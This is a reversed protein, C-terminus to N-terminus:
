RICANPRRIDLLESVSIASLKADLSDAGHKLKWDAEEAYLPVFAYFRVTKEESVVLKHFSEDFLAPQSLYACCLETNAAYPKAPDGNPVTHSVCLWSDNGHPLHALQKLWHIPWYNADDDFDEWTMKWTPPLCIMLEAYEWGKAQQPTSMPRDSMGSTVLTYYDRGPTPAVIQITIHVLDSILDHFVTEVKGIHKRIHNDISEIAEEDSIALEFAEESAQHPSIQSGVESNVTEEFM